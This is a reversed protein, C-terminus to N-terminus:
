ANDNPDLRTQDQCFTLHGFNAAVTPGVDRWRDNTLRKTSLKTSTHISSLVVAVQLLVYRARYFLVLSVILSSFM